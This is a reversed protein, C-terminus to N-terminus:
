GGERAPEICLPREREEQAAEDYETYIYAHYLMGDARRVYADLGKCLPDGGSYVASYDVSAPELKEVTYDPGVTDQWLPTAAVEALRAERYAQITAIARQSSEIYAQADWTRDADPELSITQINAAADAECTFEWHEGNSLEVRCTYRLSLPDESTLIEGNQSVAINRGGYDHYNSYMIEYYAEPERYFADRANLVEGRNARALEETWPIRGQLLAKWEESAWLQAEMSALNAAHLQAAAEAARHEAIAMGIELAFLAITIGGAWLAWRRQVRRFHEVSHWYRYKWALANGKGALYFPYFFGVIPVFCWLAQYVHNYLGWIVPFLFAGWNWRGNIEYPIIQCREGMGSNNNEAPPPPPAPHPRWAAAERARDALALITSVGETDLRGLVAYANEATEHAQRAADRRAGVIQPIAAPTRQMALIDEISFSLERLTAIARLTEVDEGAFDSYERGNRWERRPDILGKQMYFRVTRETLGTQECVEKIKM